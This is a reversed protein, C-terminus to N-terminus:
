KLMALAKPTISGFFVKNKLWRMEALHQELVGEGLNFPRPTFVDVDLILGAAELGQPPQVTQTFDIGYPYGPVTLTDHHLFGAFPLDIGRPPKPPAELYDELRLGEQPVAIRNIFRLGLRQVETPQALNRHLQWLRLGEQQFQDWSEYPALRSFVFGDRNFQVVHLKDASECRLGRWGMDHVAQEALSPPAPLPAAAQAFEMKFQVARGSPFNPYEPLASKVRESIASEEWSAEARARVEIVAEVIPARGLLPFSETLDIKFM